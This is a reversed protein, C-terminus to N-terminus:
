CRHRPIDSDTGSEPLLSSAQLELREAARRSFHAVIADLVDHVVDSPPQAADVVITSPLTGALQLYAARQRVVENFPVEQKRSWLVEAPADLLIVLDPRPVARAALHLLWAPGGYRVRKSDVLLDYIYRDFIILRTLRLAPAILFLYGLSYDAAYYFVKAVSAFLGRAPQGHPETVAGKANAKRRLIQPQMHCCLVERFAQSFQRRIVGIVLSKGCGDPGIFAIWGGTPRVIRGLFHLARKGSSAVQEPFPEATNARLKKRFSELNMSMEAWDNYVAMRSLAIRQQGSWFRAIMLDCARSNEAYLRHLRFGHKQSFDRKNLRKILCYAFEHAASPIWFGAPHWRRAALVEGARLWLSGFHRYDSASDPQLITLRSGSLSALLFARATIEHEVSQFLRTDTVRAVREIIRPMRRYDEESVMFDIDTDFSEPLGEYGTLMCYARCEDALASILAHAFNAKVYASSPDHCGGDILSNEPM